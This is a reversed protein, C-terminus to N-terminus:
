LIAKLMIAEANKPDYMFVEDLMRRAEAKRELILYVTAMAISTNVSRIHLQYPLTYPPVLQQRARELASLAMKWEKLKMHAQGLHYWGEWLTPDLQTAKRLMSIAATMQKTGAYVQGLAMILCAHDPNIKLGDGLYKEAEKYAQQELALWGLQYYVDANQSTLALATKFAQTAQPVLDLDHYCLGLQFAAESADQRVQLAKEFHKAADTMHQTCLTKEDESLSQSYQRHASGLHYLLDYTSNGQSYARQFRHIADLWQGYTLLQLGEQYLVQPDNVTRHSSVPRAQVPSGPFSAPQVPRGQIPRASIPRLSPATAGPSVLPTGDRHCFRAGPRNQWGCKACISGGASSSSVPQVNIRALLAQEAVHQIEAHIQASQNVDTTCTICIDERVHAGRIQTLPIDYGLHVQAIRSRGAPRSENIMLELLLYQATETTWNGLPLVVEHPSFLSIDIDQITPAMKVVKQISVPAPSRLTLVAHQIVATSVTRIQQDLIAVVDDSSTVPQASIGGSQECLDDLLSVDWDSGIGLAIISIGAAAAERAIQRCRDADGRTTKGDTLVIMRTVADPIKWRRLESAGQIMGASMIARGADRIRDIAAKMGVNDNCPMSPIIVQATDDYAVVAIYDTPSLHDVIRKAAERAISLKKGRMSGSQNIVVALNLPLRLGQALFAAPRAELLVHVIHQNNPVPLFEKDLLYAVKVEEVGRWTSHAQQTAFLEDIRQPAVPIVPSKVSTDPPVSNVVGPSSVAPSGSAAAPHQLLAGHTSHLAVNPFFPIDAIDGESQDPSHLYPRPADSADALLETTLLTLDRLSLYPKSPQHPNGATLVNLLADTFITHHGNQSIRSPVKPGSSCFLTTGRQPYGTGESKEKFADVTQQLAVQGPASQFSHFAAAAFCCDLIVIRRLRRAKEKLTDALSAIGISSARLNDSRTRRIALFYEAQSGVFGGHGVYYVLLDRAASGSARMEVLRRDLFDGISRDIDDASQNVDFLDLINIPSVGFQRPDLLYTKLRQASNSFAHSHQFELCHPWQSAGLLIALTTQPSPSPHSM